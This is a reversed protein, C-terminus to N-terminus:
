INQKIKSVIMEIECMIFESLEETRFNRSPEIIHHEIIQQM